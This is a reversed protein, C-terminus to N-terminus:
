YVFHNLCWREHASLNGEAISSATPGVQSLLDGYNNHRVSNTSLRHDEGLPYGKWEGFMVHQTVPEKSVTDVSIFRPRHM